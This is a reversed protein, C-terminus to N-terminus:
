KSKLADPTKSSLARDKTKRLTKLSKKKPLMFALKSELPHLIRYEGKKLTGLKLEGIGIRRLKKVDYGIKEFMKRVQRNKGETIVIKIWDYQSSGGKKRIKEIKQARVRGGIISVGRILKQLQAETPQGDLKVLYTKPIERSPHTVEQSFEGDNTLILLGESDWDLRGVPFLRHKFHKFFDMVTPRGTPDSTSTLVNEPKHFLIYVKETVAAHVPKGSVFVKDTKPNIRVGLEYITRGNVKVAGSEILQDAKRRSAVGKDSLYKNLRVLESGQKEDM